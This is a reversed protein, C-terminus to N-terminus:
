NFKIEYEKEKPNKFKERVIPNEMVYGAYFIELCNLTEQNDKKKARKIKKEWNEFVELIEVPITIQKYEETLLSQLEYTKMVKKGKRM